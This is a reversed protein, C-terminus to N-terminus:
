CVNGSLSSIMFFKRNSQEKCTKIGGRLECIRPGMKLSDRRGVSPSAKEVARRTDGLPGVGDMIRGGGSVVARTEIVGRPRPCSPTMSSPSRPSSTIALQIRRAFMALFITM